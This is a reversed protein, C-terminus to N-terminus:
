DSADQWCENVFRQQPRFEAKYNMKASDAVFYGLYLWPLSAARCAEIQRLVAYRGLSRSSEDTEYFTYVASLGSPLRDTVAVALLKGEGDRIMLHRTQGHPSACLFREFGARDEPDMDGGAHRSRLYRQYLAFREATDVAPEWSAILDQNRQWCRRQRRNPQFGAIRIRTSECAKCADCSPRYYTPGSRRFGLLALAERQETDLRLRPDVFLTRSQHDPRYACPSPASLYLPLNSM